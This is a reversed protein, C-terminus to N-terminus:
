APAVWGETLRGSPVHKFALVLDGLLLQFHRDSAEPVVTTDLSLRELFAPENLEFQRVVRPVSSFFAQRAADREVKLDFSDAARMQFFGTDGLRYEFSPHVDACTIFRSAYASLAREVQVVGPRLWRPTNVLLGWVATELGLPEIYGAYRAHFDLWPEFPEAGERKLAELVTSRSVPAERRLTALYRQARASLM